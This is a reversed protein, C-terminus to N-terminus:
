SFNDISKFVEWAFWETWEEKAYADDKDESPILLNLLGLKLLQKLASTWENCRKIRTM